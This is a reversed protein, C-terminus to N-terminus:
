NCIDRFCMNDLILRKLHIKLDSDETTKYTTKIKTLKCAEYTELKCIGVQVQRM